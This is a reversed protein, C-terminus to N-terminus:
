VEDIHDDKVSMSLDQLYIFGNMLIVVWMVTTM